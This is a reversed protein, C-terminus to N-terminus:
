MKTRYATAMGLCTGSKQREGTAIRFVRSNDRVSNGSMIRNKFLEELLKVSMRNRSENYLNRAM